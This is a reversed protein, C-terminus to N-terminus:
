YSYGVRRNANPDIGYRFDRWAAVVRSPNKRSIFVSPENQPATNVSINVNVFVSPLDEQNLPPPVELVPGSTTQLDHPKWDQANVVVTLSLHIIIFSLLSRM